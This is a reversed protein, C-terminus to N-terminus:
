FLCFVPVVIALLVCKWFWIHLLRSFFHKTKRIWVEAVNLKQYLMSLNRNTKWQTTDTETAGALGVRHSKMENLKWLFDFWICIHLSKSYKNPAAKKKDEGLLNTQSCKEHLATCAVPKNAFAYGRANNSRECCCVCNLWSATKM